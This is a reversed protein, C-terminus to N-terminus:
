AELEATDEQMHEISECKLETIDSKDDYKPYLGRKCSGVYLCSPCFDKKYAEEIPLPNMSQNM